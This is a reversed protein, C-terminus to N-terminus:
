VTVTVAASAWALVLAVNWHVTAWTARAVGPSWFLTSPSVTVSANCPWSASPSVTVYETLPRGDPRLRLLLVPTIKVTDNERLFKIKDAVMNGPLTVQEFTEADM